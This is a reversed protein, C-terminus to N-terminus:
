SQMNQLSKELSVLLNDKKYYTKQNSSAICVTSEM